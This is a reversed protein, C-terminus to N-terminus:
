SGDGDPGGIWESVGEASLDAHLYDRDRTLAVEREMKGLLTRFQEDLKELEDRLYETSADIRQVALATHHHAKVVHWFVQEDVTSM